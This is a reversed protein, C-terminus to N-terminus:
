PAPTGRMREYCHIFEEQEATQIAHRIATRVTRIADGASRGAHVLQVALITGTRGLGAHCHVVVGGQGAALWRAILDCLRGTEALAPVSM